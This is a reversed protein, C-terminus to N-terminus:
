PCGSAALIRDFQVLKRALQVRGFSGAGKAEIFLVITNSGDVFVALLDM